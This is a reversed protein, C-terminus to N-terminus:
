SLRTFSQRRVYQFAVLCQFFHLPSRERSEGEPYTRRSRIPSLRTEEQLVNGPTRMRGKMFLNVCVYILSEIMIYIHKQRPFSNRRIM